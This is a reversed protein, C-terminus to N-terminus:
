SPDSEICSLITPVHQVTQGESMLVATALRVSRVPGVVSWLYGSLPCRQTTGRWLDVFLKIKCGLSTVRRRMYNHLSRQLGRVCTYLASSCRGAPASFRQVVHFASLRNGVCTPRDFWFRTVTTAPLVHLMYLDAGHHVSAARDLVKCRRAANARGYMPLAYNSM